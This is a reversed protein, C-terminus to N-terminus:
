SAAAQPERLHALSARLWRLVEAPDGLRHTAQTVGSGVKVGVGGQGRVLSFAAEDTRDDGVFVPVRGTFPAHEMLVRIAGGKNCDDHLVEIVARGHQLRLGALGQVAQIMVRECEQAHEPCRAFHIAIASGKDEILVGPILAFHRRLTQAVSEPIPEHRRIAFSGPFRLEAGHIGAGPAQWPALLQDVVILSRGSVVAVADELEVSLERLLTALGSPVVVEVPSPALELLSGDVDLFLAHSRTLLAPPPLTPSPM